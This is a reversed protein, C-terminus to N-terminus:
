LAACYRMSRAAQAASGAAPNTELVALAEPHAGLLLRAMDAAPAYGPRREHEPQPPLHNEKRRWNAGHLHLHRAFPLWRRVYGLPDGGHQRALLDFRGTDVCLWIAPHATFLEQCLDAAPSPEFFHRNPGDLELIVRMGSREGEEELEALVRHSLERLRERPWLDESPAFPPMRWGATRYDVSPDVLAPWPYHFLVYEAGLGSAERLAERAGRCALAREDGSPALWFPAWDWTHAQVLPYHVGLVWGRALVAAVTEEVARRSELFGIEAGKWLPSLLDHGFPTTLRDGDRVLGGHIPAVLRAM